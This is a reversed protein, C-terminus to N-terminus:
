ASWTPRCKRAQAMVEFSRAQQLASRQQKEDEVLGRNILEDYFDFRAQTAARAGSAM